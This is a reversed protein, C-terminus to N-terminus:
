PLKTNSLLMPNFNIINQSKLNIHILSLPPPTRGNPKVRYSVMSMEPYTISFLLAPHACNLFCSGQNVSCKTIYFHLEQPTSQSLCQTSPFSTVPCLLCQLSCVSRKGVFSELSVGAPYVGCSRRTLTLPCRRVYIRYRNILISLM